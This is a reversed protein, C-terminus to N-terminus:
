WIGRGTREVSHIRVLLASKQEPAARRSRRRGADFIWSQWCGGGGQGRPECLDHPSIWAPSVAFRRRAAAAFELTAAAMLKESWSRIMFISISRWIPSVVTYTVVTSPELTRAM